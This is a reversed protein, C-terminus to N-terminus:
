NQVGIQAEVQSRVADSAASLTLIFGRMSVASPYQFGGRTALYVANDVFNGTPQAAQDQVAGAASADVRIAVASAAPQSMDMIVSQTHMQTLDPITIKRNTQGNNHQIYHDYNGNLLHFVFGGAALGAANTEVVIQVAASSNAKLRLFMSLANTGSLPLTPSVFFDNAGDFDIEKNIQDLIPQAAATAQTWHNNNGSQDYWNVVTLNAGKTQALAWDLNGDAGFGIDSEVNDVTNRVRLCAGAYATRLKKLDVALVSPAGDLLLAPAAAAGSGQTGFLRRRFGAAKAAGFRFPKINM